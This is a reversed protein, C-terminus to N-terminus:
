SGHGVGRGSHPEPGLGLLETRRDAHGGAV